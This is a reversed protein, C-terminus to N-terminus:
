EDEGVVVIHGDDPNRFSRYITQLLPQTGKRNRTVAAAIRDMDATTLPRDFELVLYKLESM